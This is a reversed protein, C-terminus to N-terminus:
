AGESDEQEADIADEDLPAIRNAYAVLWEQAAVRTDAIPANTLDVAADRIARARVKSDHREVVTLASDTQDTRVELLACLWGADRWAELERLTMSHSSHAM